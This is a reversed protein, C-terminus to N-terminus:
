DGLCVDRGPQARAQAVAEADLGARNCVVLDEGDAGWVYYYKTDRRLYEAFLAVHDANTGNRRARALWNAYATPNAHDYPFEPRDQRHLITATRERPLIAPEGRRVNVANYVAIAAGVTERERAMARVLATRTLGGVAASVLGVLIGLIALVVLLEVLTLGRERHRDIHM